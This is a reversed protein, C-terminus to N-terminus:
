ALKIISLTNDDDNIETHKKLLKRVEALIENPNNPHKLCIGPLKKQLNDRFFEGNENRAEWVGDSGAILFTPEAKDGAEFSLQTIKVKGNHVGLLTNGGLDKGKLKPNASEFEPKLIEGHGVRQIAPGKVVYFESGFNACSVLVKHNKPNFRKGKESPYRMLHFFQAQGIIVGGEKEARKYANNLYKGFDALFLGPDKKPRQSKREKQFLPTLHDLVERMWLNTHYLESNPTGDPETGHGQPDGIGLFLEGKGMEVGHVFDGPFSIIREEGDKNNLKVPHGDSYMSMFFGAKFSEREIDVIERDVATKTFIARRVYFEVPDREKLIAENLKRRKAEIDYKTKESDIGYKRILREAMIDRQTSINSVISSLYFGLRLVTVDCKYIRPSM